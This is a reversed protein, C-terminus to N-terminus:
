PRAKAMDTTMAAAGARTHRHLSLQSTTKTGTWGDHSSRRGPRNGGPISRTASTRGARSPTASTAVQPVSWHHHNRPNNDRPEGANLGLGKIALQQLKEKAVSAPLDAMITGM